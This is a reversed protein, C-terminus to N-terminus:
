ARYQVGKKAVRSAFRAERIIDEASASTSAQINYTDGSGSGASAGVLQSVKEGFGDDLDDTGYMMGARFLKGLQDKRAIYEEQGSWNHLWHSGPGLPGREVGSDFGGHMRVLGDAQGMRQAYKGPFASRQVSQAVDGPAMNKWNGPFRSFFKTAAYLVNTVQAPSGWGMSPRQQFVGLSDRDGHQVNVLNSEVLGTAVGIVAAKFADGMDPFRMRAADSIQRVIFEHGAGAPGM